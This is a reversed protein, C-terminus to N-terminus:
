TNSKKKQRYRGSYKVDQRSQLTACLWVAKSHYLLDYGAKRLETKVKAAPSVRMDMHEARHILKPPTLAAAALGQGVWVGGSSDWM